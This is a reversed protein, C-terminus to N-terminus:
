KQPATAGGAPADSSSSAAPTSTPTSPATAGGILAELESAHKQLAALDSEAKTARAVEAEHNGRLVDYNATLEEVQTKLQAIEIADDDHEATLEQVRKKMVAVAADAQSQSVQDLQIIQFRGDKRIVELSKRGMRDPDPRLTPVKQGTTSNTVGVIIQDPDEEQGLVEVLRGDGGTPFFRGDCALEAIGTMGVVGKIMVRM